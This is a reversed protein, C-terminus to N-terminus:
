SYRSVLERLEREFETAREGFHKLGYDVLRQLWGSLRVQEPNTAVEGLAFTMLEDATMVNGNENGHELAADLLQEPTEYHARQYTSQARYLHDFGMGAEIYKHLNCAPISGICYLNRRVTAKSVLMATAADDIADDTCGHWEALFDRLMLLSDLKSENRFQAADRLADFLIQPIIM